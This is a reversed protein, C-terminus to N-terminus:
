QLSPRSLQIIAHESLNNLSNSKLGHSSAV